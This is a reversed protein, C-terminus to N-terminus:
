EGPQCEDVRSDHRNRQPPGVRGIVACALRLLAGREGSHAAQGSRPVRCRAILRDQGNSSVIRLERAAARRASHSARDTPACRTKRAREPLASITSPLPRVRACDSPYRSGNRRTAGYARRRQSTSARHITIPARCAASRCAPPPPIPRSVLPTRLPVGTSACDTRESHACSIVFGAPSAAVRYRVEDARRAGSHPAARRSANAAVHALAM